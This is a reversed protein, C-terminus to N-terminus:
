TNGNRRRISTRKFRFGGAHNRKGALVSNINGRSIGYQRSVENVSHYITEEGSPKILVVEKSTLKNNVMKKSNRQKITGYNMNYKQDCWELNDPVNNLGREDKHNVMPYNNPNPVFATAVLRHILFGKRIGNIVLRIRYYGCGRNLFYPKLIKGSKNKVRGLDSIFYNGDSEGIAKWKEM